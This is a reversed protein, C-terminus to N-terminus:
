SCYLTFTSTYHLLITFFKAFVCGPLAHIQHNSALFIPYGFNVVGSVLARLTGFALYKANSVGSALARVFRSSAGILFVYWNIGM